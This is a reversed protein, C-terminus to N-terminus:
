RGAFYGALGGLVGGVAAGPPGFAAGISAGGMAGGLASQGASPGGGRMGSSTTTSGLNSGQLIGAHRMLGRFPAQNAESFQRMNADLGQQAFGRRVDGVEGRLTSPMGELMMGQKMMGPARMQNAREAQTNQFVLGASVDGAARHRGEALGSVAMNARPDIGFSQGAQTARGTLQGLQGQFAQDVPRLSAQIMNQVHAANPDLFDGRITQQALDTVGRGIGRDEFSGALAERQRLAAHQSPDVGALFDGSYPKQSVQNKAKESARFMKTFYPIFERPITTTSTGGGTTGGSSGM